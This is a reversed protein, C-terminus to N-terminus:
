DLVTKYESDSVPQPIVAPPQKEYVVEKEKEIIKTEREIVVVDASSTDRERIIESQHSVYVERSCGTAMLVLTITIFLLKKM